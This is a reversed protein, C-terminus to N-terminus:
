LLKKEILAIRHDEPAIRLICDGAQYSVSMKVRIDNLVRIDDQRTV